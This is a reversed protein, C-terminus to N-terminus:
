ATRILVPKAAQLELAHFDETYGEHGIEFSVTLRGDPAVFEIVGVGWHPLYTAEVLDGRTM